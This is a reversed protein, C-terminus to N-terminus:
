LSMMTFDCQWAINRIGPYRNKQKASLIRLDTDSTKMSRKAHVTPSNRDFNGRAVAFSPINKEKCTSMIDTIVIEM